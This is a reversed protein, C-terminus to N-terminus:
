KEIRIILSDAPADDVMVPRGTSIKGIVKPKDSARRGPNEERRWAARQAQEYDAIIARLMAHDAFITRDRLMRLFTLRGPIDIVSLDFLDTARRM